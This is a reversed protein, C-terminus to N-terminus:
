QAVYVHFLMYVICAPIILWLLLASLLVIIWACLGITRGIINVIRMFVSMLRGEIDTQGYMPTFINKLWLGPSLSINADQLSHWLGISVRFLGLTYWWVPFFISDLLFQLALRQLVIGFMYLIIFCVM